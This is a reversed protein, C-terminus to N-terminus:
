GRFRYGMGRVTEITSVGGDGDLKARVYRVYVDVVNSRPDFAYGWVADLIQQRSLVQNPHRMLFALLAYERSSLTVDAGDVSAERGLLDLSVRGVELTDARADRGGATRLHARVRAALEAFAFPKVIYDTAGGDLGAVRDTVDGRATLMIVPLSRSLARLERLVAFGDMGPLMVDLLVLDPLVAHARGIATEGDAATEVVHGESGLGREVFSAVLPEDEVLLIRM